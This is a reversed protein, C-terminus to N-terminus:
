AEASATAGEAEWSRGGCKGRASLGHQISMESAQVCPAVQMIKRPGRPSQELLQASVTVGGWGGFQLNQYIEQRGRGGM